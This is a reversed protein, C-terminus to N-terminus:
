REQLEPGEDLPRLSLQIDDYRGKTHMAWNGAFNPWLRLWESRPIPQRTPQSLGRPVGTAILEGCLFKRQLGRLLERGVAYAEEIEQWREKSDAFRTACNEHHYGTLNPPLGIREYAIEPTEFYSVFTDWLQRDFLMEPVQSLPFEM